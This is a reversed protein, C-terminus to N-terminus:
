VNESYRCFQLEEEHHFLFVWAESKPFVVLDDSAPYCFEQWYSVFVGWTTLLAVEPDWSLNVKIDLNPQQQRLWNGGVEPPMSESSVINPHLEPRLGDQCLFFLSREFLEKAEHSPIPHMQELIESPLVAYAPDTWRWALKHNQILM